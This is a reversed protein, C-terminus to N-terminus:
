KVGKVYLGLLVVFLIIGMIFMALSIWNLTKSLRDFKLKDTKKSLKTKSSTTYNATLKNQADALLLNSVSYGVTVVLIVVVFCCITAFSLHGYPGFVQQNLAALAALAAISFTALAKDSELTNQAMMNQIQYFQQHYRNDRESPM